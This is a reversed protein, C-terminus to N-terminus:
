AKVVTAFLLPYSAAGNKGLELAGVTAPKAKSALRVTILRPNDLFSLEDHVVDLSPALVTTLAPNDHVHVYRGGKAFAPLILEGLASNAEVIFAADVEKLKPLSVRAVATNFGLYIGRARELNECADFLQLAPNGELTLRGGLETLSKLVLLDASKLGSEQITLDGTVRLVGELKALARASEIVVSGHLIRGGPVSSYRIADSAASKILGPSGKLGLAHLRAKVSGGTSGDGTGAPLERAQRGHMSPVHGFRDGDPGVPEPAPEAVKESEKTKEPKELGIRADSVPRTGKSKPEGPGKPGTLNAM